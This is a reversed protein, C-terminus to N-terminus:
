HAPVRVSLMMALAYATSWTQTSVPVVGVVVLAYATSWTQTSLPVVGVVVLRAVSRYVLRCRRSSAQLSDCFLTNVSEIVDATDDEPKHMERHSPTRPSCVPAGSGLWLSAMVGGLGVALGLPVNDGLM